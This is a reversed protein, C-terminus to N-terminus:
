QPEAPPPTAEGGAGDASTSAPATQAQAEAEDAAKKRAAEEEEALAIMDDEPLGQFLRELEEGDDPTHTTLITELLEEEPSPADSEAPAPRPPVARRAWLYFRVLLVLLLVAAALIFWNLHYRLVTDYKYLIPRDCALMWCWYAVAALLLLFLAVMTRHFFRIRSRSVQRLHAVRLPHRRRYNLAALRLCYYFNIALLSVLATLLTTLILSRILQLNALTPLKIHLNLSGKQAAQLAVGGIIYIAMSSTVLSDLQAEVEIPIDSQLVMHKLPLPSNVSLNYTFQSIDAATWFNLKNVGFGGMVGKLTLIGLDKFREYDAESNCECILEVMINGDGLVRSEIPSPENGENEPQLPTPPTNMVLWPSDRIPEIATKLYYTSDEDSVKWGDDKYSAANMFPLLSPIQSIVFTFEYSHKLDPVERAIQQREEPSMYSTWRLQSLDETPCGVECYIGGYESDEIPNEIKRSIDFLSNKYTGDGAFRTFVVINDIYDPCKGQDDFITRVPEVQVMNHITVVQYTKYYFIGVLATLIAYIGVRFWSACRTKEETDHTFKGWFFIAAFPAMIAHYLKKLM